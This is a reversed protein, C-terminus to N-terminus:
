PTGITFVVARIGSPTPASLQVDLPLNIGANNKITITESFPEFEIGAPLSNGDSLRLRSKSIDADIGLQDIIRDPIQYELSTELHGQKPLLVQAPVTSIRDSSTQGGENSAIEKPTNTKQNIANNRGPRNDDELPVNNTNKRISTPETSLNSQDVKTSTEANTGIGPSTSGPNVPKNGTFTKQPNPKVVVPTNGLNNPTGSNPNVPGYGTFSPQPIPKVVVPTNGPNNPTGSNPNVPGYGTVIKQPNPKVVVPTNGPNNPTGSDPNVPGYGTFSVAPLPNVVVPREWHSTVKGQPPSISGTIPILQSFTQEISQGPNVITQYSGVTTTKLQDPRPPNSPNFNSTDTVYWKGQLQYIVTEGGAGPVFQPKGSDSTAFHGKWYTIKGTEPNIYRCGPCRTQGAYGGRVGHYYGGQKLTVTAQNGGSSPPIFPPSTSGQSIQIQGPRFVVQTTPQGTVTKTWSVKGTNVDYSATTGNSGTLISAKGQFQISINGSGFQETFEKSASAEAGPSLTLTGSIIEHSQSDIHINKADILQSGIPLHIGLIDSELKIIPQSQSGDNSTLHKLKRELPGGNTSQRHAEAIAVGGDYVYFDHARFNPSFFLSDFQNAKSGSTGIVFRELDYTGELDISVNQPSPKGSINVFGFGTPLGPNATFSNSPLGTTGLWLSGEPQVGNVLLNVGDTSTGSDRLGVTEIVANPGFTIEPAIIAIDGSNTSKISGDINIAGSTDTLDISILPANSNGYSAGNIFEDIASSKLAGTSLMLSTVNITAGSGISIGQPNILILSDTATLSGNIISTGGNPVVYNLVAKNNLFEVLKGSEINFESWEIVSRQNSKITVRDTGQNISADGKIVSGGSPLPAAGSTNAGLLTVSLAFLLHKKTAKMMSKEKSGFNSQHGYAHAATTDM